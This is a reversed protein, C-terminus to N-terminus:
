TAGAKMIAARAIDLARKGQKQNYHDAVAKSAWPMVTELAALLDANIEQLQKVYDSHYYKIDESSFRALSWNDYDQHAVFYIEQPMKVAYRTMM